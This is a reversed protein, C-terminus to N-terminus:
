PGWFRLAELGSVGRGLRVGEERLGRPRREGEPEEGLHRMAGPGRGHCLGGRCMVVLRGGSAGDGGVERQGRLM